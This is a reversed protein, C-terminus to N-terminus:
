NLILKHKNVINIFLIDESYILLKSSGWSSFLFLSEMSSWCFKSEEFLVFKSFKLCTDDLLVNIKEFFNCAQLSSEIM